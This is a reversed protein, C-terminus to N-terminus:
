VENPSGDPRLDRGATEDTKKWFECGMGEGEGDFIPAFFVPDHM